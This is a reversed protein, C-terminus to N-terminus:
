VITNQCNNALIHSHRCLHQVQKKVKCFNFIEFFNPLIFFVVYRQVRKSLFCYNKGFIRPTACNALADAKPASPGGNSDSYGSLSFPFQHSDTGKKTKNGVLVTSGYYAAPAFTTLQIRQTLLQVSRRAEPAGGNSDSYGSLSFPFQHSDTGKKTKNGVLVTSGYYAAPAFTTLQIRQTLLQM